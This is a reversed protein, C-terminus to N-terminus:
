TRELPYGTQENGHVSANTALESVLLCADGTREPGLEDTLERLADAAGSVLPSRPLVM